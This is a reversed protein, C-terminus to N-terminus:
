GNINYNGNGGDTEARKLLLNRGHSMGYQSKADTDDTVGGEGRSTCFGSIITNIKNANFLNKTKSLISDRNRIQWVHNSYTGTLANLEDPFLNQTRTYLENGNGYDNFSSPNVDTKRVNDDYRYQMYNKVYDVDSTYSPHVSNTDLMKSNGYPMADNGLLNMTTDKELVNLRMLREMFRRNKLNNDCLGEISIGLMTELLDDTKNRFKTALNDITTQMTNYISTLVSRNDNTSPM